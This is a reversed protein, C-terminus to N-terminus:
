KGIEGLLNTMDEYLSDRSESHLIISIYPSGGVDKVYLMLCNGAAKTSGTKGGIIAVNGPSKGDGSLYRNTTDVSINKEVGNKDKIITKYTSKQIIEVIKDHKVAENLMLYLDYATTYHDEQTLGHPNMFHTGTAGIAKAKENMLDVFSAINGGVGEAILMAVDNASYILLINLAQELTMTDGIKLGVIQAGSENVLTNTTATLIMDLSGYEIAVLATMIKTLSAPSMEEYINKSLIANKDKLDFLLACTSQTLDVTDKNVNAESVVLASAFSSILNEKQVDHVRFSSIATSESYPYVYEESGCGSTLIMIGFILLLLSCKSICKM